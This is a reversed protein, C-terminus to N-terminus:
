SPWLVRSRLSSGSGSAASRRLARAAPLRSYSSRFRRCYDLLDARAGEPARAPRKEHEAIAQSPLEHVRGRRLVPLRNAEPVAPSRDSYSDGIRSPPARALRDLREDQLERLRCLDGPVTRRRGTAPGWRYSAYIQCRQETSGSDVPKTHAVSPSKGPRRSSSPWCDLLMTSLRYREHVM